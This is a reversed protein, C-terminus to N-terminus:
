TTVGVCEVRDAPFTVSGGYIFEPWVSEWTRKSLVKALRFGIQDIENRTLTYKGALYDSYQQTVRQSGM